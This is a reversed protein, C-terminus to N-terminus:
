LKLLIEALKAESVTNTWEIQRSRKGNAKRFSVFYTIEQHKVLRYHVYIMFDTVRM